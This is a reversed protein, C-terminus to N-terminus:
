YLKKRLYLVIGSIIAVIFVVIRVTPDASSGLMLSVIFLALSLGFIVGIVQDISSESKAPKAPADIQTNTQPTQNEKILPFKTKCSPCYENEQSCGKHCTPCIKLPM